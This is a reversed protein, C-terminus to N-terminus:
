LRDIEDRLKFRGSTVYAELRRIRQEVKSFRDQVSNLVSKREFSSNFKSKLRGDEDVLTNPDNDLAFYAVIYAIFAVQLTMILAVVFLIRVLVRDVEFYDALGACVGGVMGNKRNRYLKKDGSFRSM